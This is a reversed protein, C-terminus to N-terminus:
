SVVAPVYIQGEWAEPENSTYCDTVSQSATHCLEAEFLEIQRQNAVSQLPTYCSEM